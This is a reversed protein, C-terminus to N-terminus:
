KLIKKFNLIAQKLGVFIAESIIFHGINFEKINKINAIRKASQYTLGHGAHVGLGIKNAHATAQQYLKLCNHVKTKSLFSEAYSGTYLEIRDAGFKKAESIQEIDPDLFLSVRVQLSKIQHIIEKLQGNDKLLNWGHDSTLQDPSDPVLTCQHPKYLKILELFGPYNGKKESYPNGEINFETPYEDTLDKIQKLDEPKIHRMDSRPHVTIGDAGSTICLRTINLLDPISGGRSNRLVAIKNVNVSLKTM